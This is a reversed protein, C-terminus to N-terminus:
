SSGGISDLLVQASRRPHFHQVIRDRGARGLRGCLEPDRALSGVAEAVQDTREPDVVLGEVEDNVLETVGGTRAVVVPVQMAMAEMTAVGLAEGVSVLAFVHARELLRRIRQEPVGGLLRVAESLGLKDILQRLEETHGAGGADESGAIDLEAPIGHQRLIGVAAILDSQRKQRNIRGCSVIRFPGDGRWADYPEERTFVDTDVGMPAISIRSPVQDGLARHLEEHLQQTIVIGFKAHRWKQKQNPGYNSVHGHLTLSYSLGSLLSAFLAANAADACSHVQLHMWGRCRALCALEAGIVVLPLLRVKQSFSVDEAGLISRLCRLWGGPGARLLEWATGIVSQSPPFLYTTRAEAEATWNGPVMEAPRRTSVLDVEIGMQELAKTERWLYTQAIGPFENTLYGIRDKM